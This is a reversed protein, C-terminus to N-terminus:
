RSRNQYRRSNFQHTHFPRRPSQKQLGNRIKWEWPQPSIFLIGKKGDKRKVEVLDPAYMVDWQNNIFYTFLPGEDTWSSLDEVPASWARIDPGCYARFALDHSGIIYVRLKGPRDPDEFVRPEGDPIHEWLPLYPNGISKHTYQTYSPTPQPSNNQGMSDTVSFLFLAGFLLLLQPWKMVFTIKKM